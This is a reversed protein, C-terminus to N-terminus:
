VRLLAYKLQGMGPESERHKQVHHIPIQDVVTDVSNVSRPLSRSGRREPGRGLEGTKSLPM